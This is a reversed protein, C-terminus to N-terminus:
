VHARGIKGGPAPQTVEHDFNAFGNQAFAMASVVILMALVLVKKM